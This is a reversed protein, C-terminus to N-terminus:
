YSRLSVTSDLTVLSSQSTENTPNKNEVTLSIKVSTNAGNAIQSFSLSTIAVNGANLVVPVQSEKKLCIDTSDAGCLFFDIFTVDEDLPLHRLTKLSLQAAGTTPSYVNEAGKIEYAIVDLIRRANELTNANAKTKLNTVNMWFVFGLIALLVFSSIAVSVLVEVLSFGKKGFHLRYLKVNM